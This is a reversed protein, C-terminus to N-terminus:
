MTSFIVGPGVFDVRGKAEEDSDGDSYGSGSGWDLAEADDPSPRLVLDSASGAPSQDSM